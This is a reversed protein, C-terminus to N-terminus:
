KDELLDAENSGSGYVKEETSQNTNMEIKPIVKVYYYNDDDEFQVTEARSYDLVKSMFEFIMAITMSIITAIIIVVNNVNMNFFIVAVLFGLINVVSGVAIGVYPAYDFSQIRIIYVVVFVMCLTVVYVATSSDLSLAQTFNKIIIEVIEVGAGSSTTEVLLQMQAMIVNVVVGIAIPIVGGIGYFLGAVIPVVCVLEIPLMLGSLLILIAMEPFLRIYMLYLVFFILAMVAGLIINFTALQVTAFFMVICIIQTPKLLMAIFSIGFVMLTSSLVPSVGIASNLKILTFGTLMFKVLIQILREYIRYGKLLEQRTMLIKETSTM